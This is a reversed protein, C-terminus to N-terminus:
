KRGKFKLRIPVGEGFLNQLKNIIYRKYSEPIGEPYNTFIVITPPATKVQTAYFLKVTKGRYAPINHSEEVGELFNNLESTSLKKSLSTRLGEVSKFLDRVNEGTSASICLFPLRHLNLLKWNFYEEYEKEKNKALDWKNVAVIIGRGENYIYDILSSDHHTIGVSADIMMIVINAREIARLTKITSFKDLTEITSSKKKLGATDVFVYDRGFMKIEVDISDRTTGATEHAIVRQKGALFNILTSKGVNPRGVVAIRANTRQHTPANTITKPFYKIVEDLLDDVGIGHESSIPILEDSLGLEYFESLNFDRKGSAENVKNVAYIVPKDSKRLLEIIERDTHTPGERGDLICVVVDAEDVAMLTQDRMCAELSKTTSPALGGTDIAIFDHGCWDAVAYHRDRTVGPFDNVLAKRQGILRNFLTSKGVNPRGIIAVVPKM